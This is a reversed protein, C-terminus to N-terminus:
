NPAPSIMSRTTKTLVEGAKPQPIPRDEVVANKPGVFVVTPNGGKGGKGGKSIKAM